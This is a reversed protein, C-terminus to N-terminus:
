IQAIKKFDIGINNYAKIIHVPLENNKSLKIQKKIWIDMEKNTPADLSDYLKYYRKFEDFRNEWSNNFDFGINLLYKYFDYRLIGHEKLHRQKECWNYLSKFSKDNYVNCHGHIKKFKKLKNYYNLWLSESKSLCEMDFDFNIENLLSIKKNSLQNYKKLKIQKSAWDYLKQGDLFPNIDFHENKIYFKQIKKYYFIWEDSIHKFDDENFKFNVSDFLYRQYDSFSDNYLSYEKKFWIFTNRSCKSPTITADKFTKKFINFKKIWEEDIYLKENLTFDFNIIDLLYRQHSSLSDKNICQHKIWSLLDEKKNYDLYYSNHKKIEKCLKAYQKAWEKPISCHYTLNFDFNIKRLLNIEYTSLNNLKYSNSLELGWNFLKESVVHPILFCHGYKQSFMKASFYNNFWDKNLNVREFPFDIEKLLEIQFPTLKNKKYNGRTMYIWNRLTDNDTDNQYILLNNHKLYYEKAVLYKEFWLDFIFNIEKLLAIKETQLTGNKYGKRQTQVFMYLSKYKDSNPPNSHGHELYFDKLKNYSSLWTSHISKKISLNVGLELYQSVKDQPLKNEQILKHQRKTWNGIIKFFENDEPIDMTNYQKFYIKFIEFMEEWSENFKFNISVLLEEKERSLLGDKKSMKQKCIWNSLSTDFNSKDIQFNGNKMYIDKLYNFKNMWSSCINKGM